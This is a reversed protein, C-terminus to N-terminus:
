DKKFMITKLVDGMIRLIAGAGPINKLKPVLSLLAADRTAWGTIEKFRGGLMDSVGDVFSTIEGMTPGGIFDAATIYVKGSAREFMSYFLDGALGFGAVSFQNEILRSIISEDQRFDFDGRMIDRIDKVAEGGIESLILYTVLPALNGRNAEDIIERKIFSGQQWAFSKFQTLTKGWESSWFLPIDLVSGRFQGSKVAKQGIINLEEQTWKGREIIKQVNEIGLRKLHRIIQSNNPNKILIKLSDEAWGQSCVTSFIRNFNEVSAFGVKRLFTGAIKAEAGAMEMARTIAEDRVGALMSAEKTLVKENMIRKFTKFFHKVGFEAGANIIQTANIIAALPLKGIVQWTRVAQFVEKYTAAMAKDGTYTNWATQVLGKDYGDIGISNILNAIIENEKGFAKAEEIRKIAGNLFDDFIVIPNTEYGYKSLEDFGEILFTRSQELGAYRNTGFNKVFNNLIINAQKKTLGQRKMMKEAIEPMTKKFVEIDKPIHPLHIFAETIRHRQGTARDRVWLGLSSSEENIALTTKSFVEVFDRVRQNIAKIPIEDIAKAQYKIGADLIDIINKIEAQTFATGKKNLGYKLILRRMPVKFDGIKRDIIDITKDLLGVFARGSNGMSRIMPAATQFFGKLGYMIRQFKGLEVPQELTKPLNVLETREVLQQPNIKKMKLLDEPTITVIRGNIDEGIVFFKGELDTRFEKIRIRGTESNFIEDGAKLNRWMSQNTLKNKQAELRDLKTQLKGIESIQKKGATATEKELLQNTLKVINRNTSQIKQEIKSYGIPKIAPETTVKGVMREVYRITPEVVKEEIKPVVKSFIKKLGIGLGKVVPPLVGSLIGGGIFGAGAMIAITPAKEKLEGEEALGYAGGFAAGLGGGKVLKKLANKVFGMKSLQIVEKQIVKEAIEPVARKIGLWGLGKVIGKEAFKEIGGVGILLGLSIAEGLAQSTLKNATPIIQEFTISPKELLAGKIKEKQEGQPLKKYQKLLGTQAETQKELTKQASKYFLPATITEIAGIEPKFFSQFWGEKKEPLTLEPNKIGGFTNLIQTDSFGRQKANEIKIGYNSNLLTNTILTDSYGAERAKKIREEITIM